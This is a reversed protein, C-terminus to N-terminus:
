ALTQIKRCIKQTSQKNTQSKAEHGHYVASTMDPHDILNVVSNRPLGGLPLKATSLMCEKAMLQCIALDELFSTSCVPHLKLVGQM